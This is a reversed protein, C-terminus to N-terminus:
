EKNTKIFQELSSKDKTIEELNNGFEDKYENVLATREYTIITGDDMDFNVIDANQVLSLIILANNKMVYQFSSTIVSDDELRISIDEFDKYHITIEYPKSSTQLEIGENYINAPLNNVINSVASNDGVYSNKYKLVTTLNVKSEDNTEKSVTFNGWGIMGLSVMFVSLIALRIFKGIKM